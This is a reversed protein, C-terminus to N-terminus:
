AGGRAVGQMWEVEEIGFVTGIRACHNWSAFHGVGPSANKEFKFAENEFVQDASAKNQSV